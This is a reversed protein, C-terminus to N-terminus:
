RGAGGAARGGLAHAPEILPNRVVVAGRDQGAPTPRSSVPLRHDRACAVLLNSPSWLGGQGKQVRHHVTDPEGSCVDDIAIECRGGAREHAIKRGQHESFAM